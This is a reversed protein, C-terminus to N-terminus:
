WCDLNGRREAPLDTRHSLHMRVVQTVALGDQPTLRGATAMALVERDLLLLLQQKREELLGFGSAHQDDSRHLGSIFDGHATRDVVRHDVPRQMALPPALDHRAGLM